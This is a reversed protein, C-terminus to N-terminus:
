LMAMKKFAEETMGAEHAATSLTLLNKKVLDRLQALRGEERGTEREDEKAVEMARNWDWKFSVM